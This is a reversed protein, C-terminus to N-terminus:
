NELAAALKARGSVGLKEYTRLLRNEITRVSLGLRDAIEQNSRGAAALLAAEREAPTLLARSEVAGLAPTVAGECCQALASSRRQDVAASRAEGRRRWAVAADASAEAALLLAGLDEFATSAAQLAVADGGALASAHAARVPVLDGEVQGVLAALTPVVEKAGGLRAVDHLAACVRVMDGVDTGLSVAESLFARAGSLDRAAVAAWARAIHLDVETWWSRALGLHDIEALTRAADEPRGLLAEATALSVLSERLYTLRNLHRNLTAAERAYRAASAVRGRGLLLKALQGAAWAQADIAVRAVAAEYEGRAATEAEEYRGAGSMAEVLALLRTAELRDDRLGSLAARATTAQDAAEQCAALRGARGLSYIAVVAAWVLARGSTRARLKETAEAAAAPGATDILIGARSAELEDKWAPDTVAVFAAEAVARGEEYRGLFRLNEVRLVAVRGRAEDDPPEAALEALQEEAEAGRGQLCALQAVALRAPFGSGADAAARALREGLAYDYRRRAQAAGKLLLGADAGGADLRWRAMALLDDARRAGTAEIADALVRALRRFRLVSRGAQLVEGYLPHALRFQLRRGALSSVIHGGAELREAVELDALADLEAPGLSEATALAELVRREGDDLGGMRAEILEVLRPSPALAGTLSWVGADNTLTGAGLAGLVLERLFLLNGRSRATLRAVTARDVPGDLAASLVQEVTEGDLGALELRGLIGEKWLATIPEPVPERPRLTVLLLAARSAALQHVLTASSDDLFHADDVMLVLGGSGSRQAMATAFRRLVEAGGNTTFDDGPAPVLPAMAAFAMGVATRSGAVRATAFGAQEAKRLCELALRTKGVGAAGALVVGRADPRQLLRALLRLEGDRGILPWQSHALAGTTNRVL